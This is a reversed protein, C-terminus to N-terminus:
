RPALQRDELVGSRAAVVAGQVAVFRVLLGEEDQVTLQPDFNPRCATMAPGPVAATRGRWSGCAKTTVLGCARNRVRCVGAPKSSNVSATPDGAREGNSSGGSSSGGSRAASPAVAAEYPMSIRPGGGLGEQGAPM